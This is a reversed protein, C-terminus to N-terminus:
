LFPALADQELAKWPSLLHVNPREIDSFRFEAKMHDPFGLPSRWANYREPAIRDGSQTLKTIRLGSFSL